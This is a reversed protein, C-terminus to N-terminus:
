IYENLIDIESPEASMEFFIFEDQTYNDITKSPLILTPVLIGILLGAVLIVSAIKPKLFTYFKSENRNTEDIAAELRTIFFPSLREQKEIDIEEEIAQLLQWAHMCGKCASLHIKLEDSLETYTSYNSLQNKIKKCDM